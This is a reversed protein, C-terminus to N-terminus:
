RKTSVCGPSIPAAYRNYLRLQVQSCCLLQAGEKFCNLTLFNHLKSVLFHNKTM